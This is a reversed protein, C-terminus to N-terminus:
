HERHEHRNTRAPLLLFQLSSFLSWSADQSTDYGGNWMPIQIRPTCLSYLRSPPSHHGPMFLWCDADHSVTKIKRLDAATHIIRVLINRCLCPSLRARTVTISGPYISHNHCLIRKIEFGKRIRCYYYGSRPYGLPWRHDVWSRNACANAPEVGAGRM